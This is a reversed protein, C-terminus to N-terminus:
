TRRRVVAAMQTATHATPAAEYADAAAVGALGATAQRMGAVLAPVDACRACEVVAHLFDMSWVWAPVSLEPVCVRLRAVLRVMAGIMGVDEFDACLSRMEPEFVSRSRKMM